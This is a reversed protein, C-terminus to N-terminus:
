KEGGMDSHWGIVTDSLGTWDKACLGVLGKKWTLFVVPKTQCQSCKLFKEVQEQTIQRTVDRGDHLLPLRGREANRLYKDLEQQAKPNISTYQHNSRKITKKNYPTPKITQNRIMATKM